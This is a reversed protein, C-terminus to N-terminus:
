YANYGGLELDNLFYFFLYYYYNHYKTPVMNCSPQEIDCAFVILSIVVPVMRAINM